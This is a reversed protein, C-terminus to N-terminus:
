TRRAVWVQGVSKNWDLLEDRLNGYVQEIEFGTDRLLNALEHPTSSSTASM